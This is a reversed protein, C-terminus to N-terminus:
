GRRSYKSAVVAVLDVATAIVGLAVGALPCILIVGFGFSDTWSPDSSDFLSFYLWAMCGLFGVAFSGWFAALFRM